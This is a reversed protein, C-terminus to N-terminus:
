RRPRVTALVEGSDPGLGEPTIVIRGDKMLWLNIATDGTKGSLEVNLFPSPEDDRDILVAELFAGTRIESRIADAM